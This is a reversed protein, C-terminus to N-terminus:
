RLTPFLARSRCGGLLPSRRSHSAYFTFLFVMDSALGGFMRWVSASLLRRWILLPRLRSWGTRPPQRTSSPSTGLPLKRQAVRLQGTTPGPTAARGVNSSPSARAREWIRLISPLVGIPRRGGDNKPILHILATAVAEPWVGTRETLNLFEAIAQQLPASLSAVASPPFHDCGTRTNKKFSRAARGIDGASLPPLQSPELSAGRWPAQPGDGLRRWIARWGVLDHELVKQPSAKRESGVGVIPADVCPTGDRKVLRHAASAGNAVQKSVFIRWSGARQELHKRKIDTAADHAAAYIKGWMATDRGFCHDRIFALRRGWEDDIARIVEPLGKVAVVKQVLCAWQRKALETIMHCRENKNQFYWCDRPCLYQAVGASPVSDLGKWAVSTGAQLAYQQCVEVSRSRGLYKAQPDGEKYM